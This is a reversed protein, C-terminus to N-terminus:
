RALQPNFSSKLARALSRGSFTEHSHHLTSRPLDLVPALLARAVGTHRYSQKVYLWHLVTPTSEDCRGPREHVLYGLVEDPVGKYHAVSVCSRKLLRQVVVRQAQRYAGAPLEAVLPLARSAADYFSRQWSDVVFPEEGPAALRTVLATM